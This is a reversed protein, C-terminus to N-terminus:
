AADSVVVRVEDAGEQLRTMTDKAQYFRQQLEVADSHSVSSWTIHSCAGHSRRCTDAVQRMKPQSVYDGLTRAKQGQDMAKRYTESLFDRHISM